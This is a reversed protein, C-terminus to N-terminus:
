NLYGRLVYYSADNQFILLFFVEKGFLVADIIAFNKDIPYILETDSGNYHVIGDYGKFFIDKTNRGYFKNHDVNTSSFDKYLSVINNNKHYLKKEWAFFIKDGLIEMWPLDSPNNANSYLVNVDQGDTELLEYLDSGPLNSNISILYFLSSNPITHIRTFQGVREPGMLYEWNNGDFHMIISFLTDNTLNSTTGAAYLNNTTYGWIDTIITRLYGVPLYEGYFEFTTGNFKWFDSYRGGIWVQNQSLGFISSAAVLHPVTLVPEWNNGDFHLVNEDVNWGDTVLWVNSSSSGLIDVYHNPTINSLSDLEWSYDRRGPSISDDILQNEICTNLLLCSFSLLLFKNM